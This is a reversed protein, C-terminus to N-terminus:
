GSSVHSGASSRVWRRRRMIVPARSGLASAAPCPPCRCLFTRVPVAGCAPTSEHGGAAPLPRFLLPWEGRQEALALLPPAQRRREAVTTRSMM